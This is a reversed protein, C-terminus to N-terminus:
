MDATTAHELACELARSLTLPAEGVKGLDGSLHDEILSGAADAIDEGDEDSVEAEKLARLKAIAQRGLAGPLPTELAIALREAASAIRSEVPAFDRLRAAKKLSRIDAELAAIREEVADHTQPAAVDLGGIIAALEARVVEDLIAKVEKPTLDRRQRDKMIEREAAEIAVLLAAARKM